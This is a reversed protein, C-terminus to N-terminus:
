SGGVQISPPPLDMGLGLQQCEDPVLPKYQRRPDSYQRKCLFLPGQSLSPYGYREQETAFVKELGSQEFSGGFGSGGYGTFRWGHHKSRNGFTIRTGLRFDSPIKSTNLNQNHGQRFINGRLDDVKWYLMEVAAYVGDPSRRNGGFQGPQYPKFFRGDFVASTTDSLVMALLLGAALFMKTRSLFM